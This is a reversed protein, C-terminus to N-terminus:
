GRPARDDAHNTVFCLTVTVSQKSKSISPTHQFFTLEGMAPSDSRTM